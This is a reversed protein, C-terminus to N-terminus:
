QHRSSNRREFALSTRRRSQPQAVKTYRRCCRKAQKMKWLVEARLQYAETYDEKLVIAKTLMAIATIDDKMGIAAKATLYFSLPNKNDLVLAKQCADKM